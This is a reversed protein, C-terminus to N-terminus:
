HTSNENPKEEALWDAYKDLKNDSGHCKKFKIGSGCPCPDNRGAQDVAKGLQRESQLDSYAKDFVKDWKKVIETWTQTKIWEYAREVIEKTKDKHEYAWVMKDVLDEVNTLPRIRENDELGLCVWESSTSGAKVPIGRVQDIGGKNFLWDNMEKNEPVYSNFIDLISTINPACIPTKAAMAESTIFGWGEGLTTTVCLDAANYIRNVVEIPFGVGPQFDEPCTWDDGVRLDFNRAMEDLSGGADNSKMHLYLHSNPVRKKFEAFAAFTRSIDKRPQNRSVNVVLFTNDAVKGGFYERRFKKIEEAPLPKFLNTDVGHHIIEMRDAMSTIPLHAVNNSKGEESKMNFKIRLGDKKDFKMIQSKGWECYAVPYHALAISRTVWNEKVPADVPCYAIWKFWQEPPLSRKWMEATVRLQEAFPVNMGLGELVFPDQITFILDWPPTLGYKVQNGAIAQMIRDRGYMDTGNQPMAPFIKYPFKEQDYYDGYHNIGIIDFEYKGTAALGQLVNRSVQAFGTATTPSDFLCLVRIKKDSM